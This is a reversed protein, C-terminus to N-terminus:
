PLWSGINAAAAPGNQGPRNAGSWAHAPVSEVRLTSAPGKRWGGHSFYSLGLM